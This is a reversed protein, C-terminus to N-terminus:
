HCTQFIWFVSFTSCIFINGEEVKTGVNSALVRSGEQNLKPPYGPFTLPSFGSLLAPQRLTKWNGSPFAFKYPLLFEEPYFSSLFNYEYPKAWLWIFLPKSKHLLIHSSSCKIIHQLGASYFDRHMLMTNLKVLQFLKGSCSILESFNKCPVHTVPRLVSIIENKWHFSAFLETKSVIARFEQKQRLPLFIKVLEKWVGSVRQMQYLCNMAPPFYTLM